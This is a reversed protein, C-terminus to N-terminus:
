IRHPQRGPRANKVGAAYLVQCVASVSRGLRAAIAKQTWGAKRLQVALEKDAATMRPPHPPVVAVGGTIHRWSKGVLADRMVMDTVGYDEALGIITHGGEAYLARAKLVAAETLKAAPHDEGVVARGADVMDAVNDAQTGLKLHSGEVCSARHCDFHRVVLGKPIEAGGNANRWALRHAGVIKGRWRFQGHGFGSCRGLWLRCGKEDPDAVLADWRRQDSPTM